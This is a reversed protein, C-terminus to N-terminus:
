SGLAEELGSLHKRLESIKVDTYNRNIGSEPSQGLYLARLEEPVGIRRFLDNLSHRM